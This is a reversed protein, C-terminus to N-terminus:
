GTHGGGLESIHQSGQRGASRAADTRCDATMSKVEDRTLNGLSQVRKTARADM